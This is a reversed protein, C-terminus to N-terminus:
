NNKDYFLEEKAKLKACTQKILNLELQTLDSLIDGFFSDTLDDYYADAKSLENDKAVWVAVQDGHRIIEFFM